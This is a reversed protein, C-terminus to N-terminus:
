LVGTLPGGRGAGPASAPRAGGDTSARVDHYGYGGIVYIAGASDIVSTPGERSGWEMYNDARRTWTVGAGLRAHARGIAGFAVVRARGCLAARASSNIGCTAATRHSPACVAARVCVNAVCM